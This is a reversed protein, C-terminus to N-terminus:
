SLAVDGDNTRSLVQELVKTASLKPPHMAGKEVKALLKRSRGKVAAKPITPISTKNSNLTAQKNLVALLLLPELADIRLAIHGNLCIRHWLDGLFAPASVCRTILSADYSAPRDVL